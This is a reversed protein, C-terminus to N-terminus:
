IVCILNESITLGVFGFWEDATFSLYVYFLDLCGLSCICMNPSSTLSLVKQMLLMKVLHLTGVKGKFM